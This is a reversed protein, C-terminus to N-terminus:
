ALDDGAPRQGTEPAATCFIAAEIARAARVIDGILPEDGRSVFAYRSAACLFALHGALEQIRIYNM